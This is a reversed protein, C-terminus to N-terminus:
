FSYEHIKFDQLDFAFIKDGEVLLQKYYGTESLNIVEEFKLKGGVTDYSLRIVKNLTRKYESSADKPVYDSYALLYFQNKDQYVDSYIQMSSNNSSAYLEIMRQRTTKWLDLNSLDLRDLVKFDKDLVTVTMETPPFHFYKNDWKKMYASNGEYRQHENKVDVVQHNGVKTTGSLLDLVIISKDKEPIAFVLEKDDMVFDYAMSYFYDSEITKIFEGQKNILVVRSHDSDYIAFQGNLFITSGPNSLDEPGDGKSGLRAVPKLSRDLVLVTSRNNEILAYGDDTKIFDSLRDTLFLSDTEVDHIALVMAEIEQVVSKGCSFTGLILALLIFASHIILKKKVNLM